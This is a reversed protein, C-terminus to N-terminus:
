GRDCPVGLMRGTRRDYSKIMLEYTWKRIIPWWGASMAHVINYRVKDNSKIWNLIKWVKYPHVILMLFSFSKNM